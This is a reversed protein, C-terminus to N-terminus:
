RVLTLGRVLVGRVRWWWGVDWRVGGCKSLWRFPVWRFAQGVEFGSGFPWRLGQRFM